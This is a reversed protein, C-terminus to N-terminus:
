QKIYKHFTFTCLHLNYPKNESIIQNSCKIIQNLANATFAYINNIAIQRDFSSTLRVSGKTNKLLISM